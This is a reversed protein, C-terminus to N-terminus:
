HFLVVLSIGFSDFSDNGIKVRKYDLLDVRISGDGVALALGYMYGTDRVERFNQTLEQELIKYDASVIGAKFMIPWNGPRATALLSKSKYMMEGASQLDDQSNWGNLVELLGGFHWSELDKFEYGAHIGFGGDFGESNFRPQVFELNFGILVTGSYVPTSLILLLVVWLFKATRNEM